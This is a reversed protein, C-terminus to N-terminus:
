SLIINIKGALFSLRKKKQRWSTQKQAENCILSTARVAVDDIHLM